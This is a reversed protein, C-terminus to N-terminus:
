VEAPEDTLSSGAYSASAPRTLRVMLLVLVATHLVSVGFMQILLTSVPTSEDFDSVALLLYGVFVLAAVRAVLSRVDGDLDRFRIRYFYIGLVVVHLVVLGVLYLTAPLGGKMQVLPIVLFSLAFVAATKKLFLPWSTMSLRM